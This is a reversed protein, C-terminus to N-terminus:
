DLAAMALSGISPEDLAPSELSPAEQTPAHNSQAPIDFDNLGLDESAVAASSPMINLASLDDPAVLSILSDNTNSFNPSKPKDVDQQHFANADVGPLEAEEKVLVTENFNPEQALVDLIKELKDETLVIPNPALETIIQSPPQKDGLVAFHLKKPLSIFYSQWTTLPPPMSSFVLIALDWETTANEKKLIKPSSALVVTHGANQLLKKLEEPRASALAVETGFLLVKSAKM